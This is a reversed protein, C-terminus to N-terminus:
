VVITGQIYTSYRKVDVGRNISMYSAEMVPSNYTTSCHVNPHPYRKSYPSYWNVNGGTTSKTRKEGSRELMQQKYIKKIIAMRVPTFSHRVTTKIQM